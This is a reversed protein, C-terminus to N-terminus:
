LAKGIEIDYEFLYTRDYLDARYFPSGRQWERAEEISDGDYIAMYGAHTGDENRLAGAMAVHVASEGLLENFEEHYKILESEIGARFIGAMLFYM